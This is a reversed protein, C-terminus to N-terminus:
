IIFLIVERDKKFLSITARFTFIEGKEDLSFSNVIIIPSLKQIEMFGGKASVSELEVFKGESEFWLQLERAESLDPNIILSSNTGINLSCTNFDSVQLYIYDVSYGFFTFMLSQSCVKASKLLILPNGSIKCNIADTGWLTCNIKQKTKDALILERKSLQNGKSRIMIEVVDLVEVCIGSSLSPLSLLYM